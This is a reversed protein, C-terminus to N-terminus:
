LIFSDWLIVASNNVHKFNGKPLTVITSTRMDRLKLHIIVKVYSGSTRQADIVLHCSHLELTLERRQQPGVSPNLACKEEQRLTLLM